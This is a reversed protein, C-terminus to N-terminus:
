TLFILKSVGTATLSYTGAMIAIAKPPVIYSVM